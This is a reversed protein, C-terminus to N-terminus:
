PKWDYPNNHWAMLMAWTTEDFNGREFARNIITTFSALVHLRVKEAAFAQSAEDFEYSVITICDTVQAGVAKLAQVGALSSGGTTVLDEILLIREGRVDGGEVQKGKGHEKRQKRVFLSPRDMAYGLAASHPIGAAEIGAIATFEIERERILTRCGDIVIKWHKPHFPLRRNDVYVPAVMGSKFTVPNDPTFGVAGIDLLADAIAIQTAGFDSTLSM